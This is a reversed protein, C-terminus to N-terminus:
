KKPAALGIKKRLAVSVLSNKPAVMDRPNKLVRFDLVKKVAYHLMVTMIVVM